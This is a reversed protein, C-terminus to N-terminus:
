GARREGVDLGAEKLEMTMQPRGFSGLNLRYQERIHALVSASRDRAGHVIVVRVSVNMRCLMEVPRRHRWSEVFAFRM